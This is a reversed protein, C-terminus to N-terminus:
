QRAPIRATERFRERAEGLGPIRYVYARALRSGVRCRNLGFRHLRKGVQTAHERCAIDQERCWTAYLAQLAETAIEGPWAECGNGGQLLWGRALMAEWWRSVSDVGDGERCRKRDARSRLEAKMNLQELVDIGTAAAVARNVSLAADRKGAGLQQATRLQLQFLRHAQSLAGVGLDPEARAASAKCAFYVKVLQRQVQWALDDTFVKVLMLYGTETLLVLGNPANIDFLTKAEYTQCVFYDESEILKEKNRNFTLRATGEPRQHAQDVMAFTIVPQDRYFLVSLQTKGVKVIPVNTKSNM